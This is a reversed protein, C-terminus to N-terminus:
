VPFTKMFKRFLISFLFKEYEVNLSLFFHFIKSTERMVIQEIFFQFFYTVEIM